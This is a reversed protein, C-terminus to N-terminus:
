YIFLWINVYFGFYINKYLVSSFYDYCLGYILRVNYFGVYGIRM